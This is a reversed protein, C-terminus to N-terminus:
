TMVSASPVEVRLKGASVGPVGTVAVVDAVTVVFAPFAGDGFVLLNYTDDRLAVSGQQAFQQAGMM